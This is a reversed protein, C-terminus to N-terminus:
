KVKNEFNTVEFSVEGNSVELAFTDDLKLRRNVSWDGFELLDQANQAGEPLNFVLYLNHSQVELLRTPHYNAVEEIHFSVGEDGNLFFDESISSNLEPLDKVVKLLVRSGTKM